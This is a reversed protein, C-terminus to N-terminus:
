NVQVTQHTSPGLSITTVKVGILKEIIQCYKKFNKPLDQYNKVKSTDTKWGPYEEYIPQCKNFERETSPVRNIKKGDFQYAVCVKITDLVGLVDQKTLVIETFGNMKASHRALVADFWGCRRARGTTVGFENGIVRIKEEIKGEMQTPLHGSGVRTMYSKYVGVIKENQNPLLGSGQYAGLRTTPSSTVKDYIGWDLDLLSGQAGELLIQSNKAAASQLIQETNVVHSRLRKSVLNYSDFFNKFSPLKKGVSDLQERNFKYSKNLKERSINSDVFEGFRVGVRAAKDAYAPGIGKKTTGITNKGREFEQVEELLRHWPLVLHAKDSILINKSSFGNTKLEDIEKVLEVPDIVMGNGLVCKTNKQLSSSPILHFKFVGKENVVTHGANAGGNFRVAFSPKYKKTLWDVVKGKGEDGWQGGIVIITSM